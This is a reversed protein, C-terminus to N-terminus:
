KKSLFLFRFARTLVCVVSFFSSQPTMIRSRIESMKSRIQTPPTREPINNFCFPTWFRKRKKSRLKQSNFVFVGVYPFRSRFRRPRTVRDRRGRRDNEKRSRVWLSASVDRAWLKLARPCGTRTNPTHKLQRVVSLPRRM